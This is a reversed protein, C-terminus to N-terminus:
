AAEGTIALTFFSPPLQFERAFLAYQEQAREVLKERLHALVGKAERPIFQMPEMRKEWFDDFSQYFIGREADLQLIDHEVLTPTGAM